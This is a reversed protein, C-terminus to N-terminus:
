EQLYREEMYTFLAVNRLRRLVPIRPQVHGFYWRYYSPPPGVDRPSLFQAIQRTVCYGFRRRLFLCLIWPRLLPIDMNRMSSLRLDLANVGRYGARWADM